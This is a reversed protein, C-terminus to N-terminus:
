YTISSFICTPNIGENYQIPNSYTAKDFINKPDFVTIDADPKRALIAQATALGSIGAGVISIKM